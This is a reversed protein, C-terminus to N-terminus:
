MVEPALAFVFNCTPCKLCPVTQTEYKEIMLLPRFALVDATVECNPCQLEHGRLLPGGHDTGNFYALIDPLRGGNTRAAHPARTNRATM